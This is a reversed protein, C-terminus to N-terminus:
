TDPWFLDSVAHMFFPAVIIVATLIIPLWFNVLEM